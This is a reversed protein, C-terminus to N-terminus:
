MGILSLLLLPSSNLPPSVINQSSGASAQVSGTSSEGAECPLSFTIKKYCMRVSALLIGLFKQRMQLDDVYHCPSSWLICINHWLTAHSTM